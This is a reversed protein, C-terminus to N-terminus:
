RRAPLSALLRAAQRVGLLDSVIEESRSALVSLLSDAIGHTAENVGQLHCTAAFHPPLNLRYSRNVTIADLGARAALNRV